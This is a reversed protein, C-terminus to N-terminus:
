QGATEDVLRRGVVVTRASAITTCLLTVPEGDSTKLLRRLEDPEIPFGRRRIEDPRWGRARLLDRLRRISFPMSELVEFTVGFPTRQPGTTTIYAIAPDL